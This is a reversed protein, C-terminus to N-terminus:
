PGAHRNVALLCRRRAHPCQVKLWRTRAGALLCKRRHLRDAISSMYRTARRLGRRCRRQSLHSLQHKQAVGVVHDGRANRRRM